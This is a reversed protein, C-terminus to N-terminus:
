RSSPAAKLSTPNLCFFPSRHGLPNWLGFWGTLLKKSCRATLLHQIYTLKIHTRAPLFHFYDYPRNISPLSSISLGCLITCYELTYLLWLTVVRPRFACFCPALRSEPFFSSRPTANITGVANPQLICGVQPWGSPLSGLCHVGRVDKDMHGMPVYFCDSALPCPFGNIYNICTLKKPCLAHLVSFLASHAQLPCPCYDVDM